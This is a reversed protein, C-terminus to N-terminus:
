RYKMDLEMPMFWNLNKKKILKKSLGILQFISYLIKLKLGNKAMAM